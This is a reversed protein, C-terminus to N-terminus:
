YIYIYINVSIMNFLILVTYAKGVNLEGGMAVYTGLTCAVMCVPVMVFILESLTRLLQTKFLLKVENHRVSAINNLAFDEWGYYKLIRIGDIYENIYKTRQDTLKLKIRRYVGWKSM